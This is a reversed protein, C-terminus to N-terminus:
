FRWQLQAYFHRKSPLYLQNFFYFRYEDHQKALLNKGMVSVELNKTPQWALRLDLETYSPVRIEGLEPQDGQALHSLSRLWASGQWKPAFQWHGQLSLQHEPATESNTFPLRNDFYTYAAQFQLQKSPKWNISLASGYSHWQVANQLEGIINISDATIETDVVVFDVMQRYEHVFLNTDIFWNENLTERWGMEYALLTEPKVPNEPPRVGASIPL